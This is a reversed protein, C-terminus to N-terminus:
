RPPLVGGGPRDYTPEPPLVSLLGEFDARLEEVTLGAKLADAIPMTIQDVFVEHAENKTEAELGMTTAFVDLPRVASSARSVSGDPQMVYEPM